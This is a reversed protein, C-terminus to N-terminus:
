FELLYLGGKLFEDKQKRLNTKSFHSLRYDYKKCLGDIYAKSHSYRGSPELSFGKELKHETSFALRGKRKNRSKILRFVDQLEGVYIFVDAALFYDFDLNATSLYEIIDCHILRNYINKARAQDLMANSLDIGELNNCYQEIEVGLLGTGCGIDLVSGIPDIFQNTKIIKALEKPINYNLTGTLSQDFKSAYSDFLNEVYERPATKTTEGASAALLHRAEVYDPKIAIAKEFNEVATELIGKARWAAGLNFYAHALDSKIKVAQKYSAIAGDLDGKNQLSVGLSFHFIADDTNFTMSFQGPLGM